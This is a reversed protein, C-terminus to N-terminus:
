RKVVEGVLEEFRAALRDAEFRVVNARVPKPLAARGDRAIGAFLEAIRQTERAEFCAGGYERLLRASCSHGPTIAIIPRGGGFYDALKSPFYPSIEQDADILLLGDATRMERLSDWYNVPGRNVALGPEIANFREAADGIQDGIFEIRLHRLSQGGDRVLRLADILPTPQRRPSFGGLYRLVIPGDTAPEQQPYQEPDFVHHLTRFNAQRAAYRGAVHSTLEESVTISMDAEWVFSREAADFLRQRVWNGVEAYPNNAWPDSYHAIWPLRPYRRKCARAAYHSDIPMAFSVLADYGSAGARGVHEILSRAAARMWAPFNQGALAAAAKDYLSRAGSPLETVRINPTDIWEGVRPDLSKGLVSRTVSVVDIQHGRRALYKTLKGLQLSRAARSPPFHYSVFLLKM